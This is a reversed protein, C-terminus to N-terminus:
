KLARVRGVAVGIVAAALGLSVYLLTSSTTTSPPAAASPTLDLGRKAKPPSTEGPQDVEAAPPEPDAMLVVRFLALVDLVGLPGGDEDVVPVTRYGGTSLMHLAQRVTASGPMTDPAATMVDGVLTSDPPLSDAVAHLLDKATLIGIVSTGTTATVLLASRRENMLTAAQLLRQTTLAGRLRAGGGVLVPDDLVDALTRQAAARGESASMADFLLKTIDLIGVLLGGDAADVVPLHRCQFALVTSLAESTPADTRVCVPDRTMVDRAAVVSPDLGAALVKRVIDNDTLIGVLSMAATQDADAAVDVTAEDYVLVADRRGEKMARAADAISASAAVLVGPKPRLDGVTGCRAKVAAPLPSSSTEPLMLVRTPTDATTEAKRKPPTTPEAPKAKLLGFTFDM